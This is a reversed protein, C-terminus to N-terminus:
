LCFFFTLCVEFFFIYLIISREVRCPNGLLESFMVLLIHHALVSYTPVKGIKLLIPGGELRAM